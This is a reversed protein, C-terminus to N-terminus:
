KINKKNEENFIASIILSFGKYAFFFIIPIFIIEIILLTYNDHRINNFGAYLSLASIAICTSFGSLYLGGKLLKEKNM